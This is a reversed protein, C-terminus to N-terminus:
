GVIESIAVQRREKASILAAEIVAQIRAGDEFTPAHYPEGNAIASIFGRAMHDQEHFVQRYMKQVDHAAAGQLIADPIPLDKLYGEGEKAGRVNSVMAWDTHSYLTGGSGHLEVHHTQERPTDEYAVSTVHISGIAGNEFQVQLLAVDDGRSYSQGHPPLDRMVHCQLMANVAVIEGYYWRALYLMHSGLDGVVGAGAVDLDFRWQYKSTRAYGAYYRMNLMYPTGIYGEELLQKLYRFAPMFRYTFPVLTQVNARQAADAMARAQAYNFALPKECLVHIGKEIARMSMAFHADNPTNVILADLAEQELMAEWDTYAKPISWQQAFAQTTQANRGAVAVVNAHPHNTLAPMYMENSWWSTGIIGVNVM